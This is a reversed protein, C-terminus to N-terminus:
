SEGSIRIRPKKPSFKRLNRKGNGIADLYASLAEFRPHDCGLPSSYAALWALVEAGLAYAFDRADTAETTDAVYLIADALASDIVGEAYLQDALDYVLDANVRYSKDLWNIEKVHPMKETICKRKM